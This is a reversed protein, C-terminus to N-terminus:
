EGDFCVFFSMYDCPADSWRGANKIICGENGVLNNPESYSWPTFNGLPENKLSWHWSNINTYLGIWASSNFQQTKAEDQLKVMDDTSNITALDTYTARCYAQADSWTKGQQILYYKRTVSLVFPLVGTLLLLVFLRHEM